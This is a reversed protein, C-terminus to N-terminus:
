KWARLVIRWSSLVLAIRFGNIDLAQIGNDGVQAVVNTASAYVQVGWGNLSGAEMVYGGLMEDGPVYQRDATKCRLIVEFKEPITGLGHAVTITGGATISQEASEFANQFVITPLFASRRVKRLVDVSQDYMAFFDSDTVVNAMETLGSIDLAAGDATRTIGEGTKVRLQGSSFELAPSTTALEISVETGVKQLGSGFTLTEASLTPSFNALQGSQWGLFAGESPTPLTPDTDSAESVKFARELVEGQQQVAMTLKDLAREHTEAPFPDNEVYDTEQTLPVSRLITLTQGTQPTHDVPSTAVTLTGGAPNGAGSITYQSNLTWTTEVGAADRHVVKLDAEQLFYFPVAFATTAGDGAYGARATASSVTM